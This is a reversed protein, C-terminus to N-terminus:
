EGELANELQLSAGAREAMAQSVLRQTAVADGALCADAARALTDQGARALEDIRADPAHGHANLRKVAVDLRRCEPSAPGPRAVTRAVLPVLADNLAVLDKDRGKLWHTMNANLGPPVPAAEAPSAGPRNTWSHVDTAVLVALVMALMVAVRAATRMRRPPRDSLVSSTKDEIMKDRVM